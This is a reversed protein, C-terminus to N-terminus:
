WSQRDSIFHCDTVSTYVAASVTIYGRGDTQKAACWSSIISHWMSSMCQQCIDTYLEQVVYLAHNDCM